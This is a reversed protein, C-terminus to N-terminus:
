ISYGAFLVLGDIAEIKAVAWRPNIKSETLEEFKEFALGLQLEM